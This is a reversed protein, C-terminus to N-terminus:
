IEGTTLRLQKPIKDQMDPGRTSPLSISERSLGRSTRVSPLPQWFDKSKVYRRASAFACVYMSYTRVHVTFPYM